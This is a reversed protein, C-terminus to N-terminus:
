GARLAHASLCRAGGKEPTRSLEGPPCGPGTGAEEGPFGRRNHSWNWRCKRAPWRRDRWPGQHGPGTSGPGPGPIGLLRRREGLRRPQGGRAPRPRARSRLASLSLDAGFPDDRGVEVWLSFLDQHLSLDQPRRRARKRVLGGQLSGLLAFAGWGADAISRSLYRNKVLATVFLDEVCLRAHTKVLTTSSKHCFDKRRDAIEAHIMRLRDDARRRRKSGQHRRSARRSARQLAALSCVYAGLPALRALETGDASAAVLFHRLGLDVGVFGQDRPETHRMAPHFDAAELVMTVRFRGRHRTITASCIRGRGSRILRRLRRTDEEGQGARARPPHDIPTQVGRDPHRPERDLLGQQPASLHGQDPGEEQFSPFGTKRRTERAARWAALARALDVAAEEMVQACVETRWILGTAEVETRGDSDVAFIRGAAASRKWANFANILSYPSEPVSVSPDTRKQEVAQQWLALCQNYSFRRAGFHRAFAQVQPGTPEATFTFTTMRAVHNVM